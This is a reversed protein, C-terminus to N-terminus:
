RAAPVFKQARMGYGVDVVYVEGTRAVAVQHAFCFQGDYKGVRGWSQLIHGQLDLKLVRGSDPPKKTNSQGGDVVYAFGDPGITIDWPKGLEASKWQTLFKGNGDFIQVRSNERDAVYVRGASDLSIGHPIKFQGPQDGPKGWELLFKGEPSFKVVRSNGYGDTVYFEGSPAVAVDTPSHFHTADQGFVDKVGFTMLLKGDNSFKQVLHHKIDTVWVNDHDDVFLGHPTGFIEDGWSNLLKGTEGDFCMLPHISRHFVFVHNHSDVGVGAVEGFVFGDPLEPWGHVVRYAAPDGAALVLRAILAVVTLSGL